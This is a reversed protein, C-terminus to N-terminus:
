INILFKDGRRSLLNLKLLSFVFYTSGFFMSTVRSMMWGDGGGGGSVGGDGGVGVGDGVGVGVGVGVDVGVGFGGGGRVQM